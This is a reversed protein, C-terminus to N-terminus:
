ALSMAPFPVINGIFILTHCRRAAGDPRAEWHRWAVKSEDDWQHSSEHLLTELGLAAMAEDTSSPLSRGRDLAAWRHAAVLDPSPWTTQYVATLAEVYTGM